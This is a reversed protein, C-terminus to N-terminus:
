SKSGEFTKSFRDFFLNESNTDQPGSFFFFFDETVEQARYVPSRSFKPVCKSISCLLAKQLKLCNLIWGGVYWRPTRSAGCVEERPSARGPHRRAQRGGGAAAGGGHRGASPPLAGPAGAHPLGGLAAASEPVGHTPQPEGASHGCGPVLPAAM